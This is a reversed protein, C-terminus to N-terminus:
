ETVEDTQSQDLISTRTMSYQDHTEPFIPKGQLVVETVLSSWLGM